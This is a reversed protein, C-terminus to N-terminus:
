SIASNSPPSASDNTSAAPDAPASASSGKTRTVRKRSSPRPSKPAFCRYIEREAKPLEVAETDASASTYKDCVRLFFTVPGHTWTTIVLYIGDVRFSDEKPLQDLAIDAIDTDVAIVDVPAGYYHIEVPRRTDPANDAMNAVMYEASHATSLLRNWDAQTGSLLFWSVPLGDPVGCGRAALHLRDGHRLWVYRQEEFRRRQEANLM